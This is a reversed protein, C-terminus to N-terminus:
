LNESDAHVDLGKYALKFSVTDRTLQYLLSLTPVSLLMGVLGFLGGGVTVAFMVWIGPLGVSNGVVRPYIINGEIQQIVVTFVVFWIAQPLSIVSILIAGLFGGFIAGFIPILSLAGTLVSISLRYPFNFLWMGLYFLIGLIFAETVQGSIFNSFVENAKKGVAIIYNAWDLNLSAYILMKFHRTLSEKASLIFIAFVIAIFTNFVSSIVVSIVTVLSGFIGTAVAQATQIARSRLSDMDLNMNQLGELVAPNESFYTNIWNVMKNIESPVVAIFSSITDQLDPLVLFVVFSILVFVLLFAFLIGLPRYWNYYKGTWKVLQNEFLKLPLNLIFAAGAGLIFPLTLTLIQQWAQRIIGFNNIIWFFVVAFVIVGIIQKLTKKSAM